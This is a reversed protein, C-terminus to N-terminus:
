QLHAHLESVLVSVCLFSVVLWPITKAKSYVVNYVYYLLICGVIGLVLFYARHQWVVYGATSHTCGMGRILRSKIGTM